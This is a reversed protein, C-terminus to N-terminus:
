RGRRGLIINEAEKCPWATVPRWVGPEDTPMVPVAIRRGGNDRGIVLFPASGTKRNKLVLYSNGLVQRVQRDTLGHAAFKDINRDDFAFDEIEM